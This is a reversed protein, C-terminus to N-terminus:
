QLFVGDIVEGGAATGLARWVNRRISSSVFRVSGDMHAVNVGAGHYSRATVAAYTPRNPDRGEQQTSLDIDYVEGAYPYSVFTNPTYVTTFGTHHVRGDPWVTHGTNDELAPGLKLEGTITEFHGPSDPLTPDIAGSVNRIYSTYHKVDAICLTQSLGDTIDAQRVRRNVRFPGDGSQNTVPDHIFWSGMNFGYNTGHVYPDGNKVRTLTNIEAPCNYIPIVHATVGTDVQDHWDVAFDVRRHANIEECFPMIKAHISWAGRVVTGPQFEFSAPYHKNSTEYNHVALAINKLNNRCSLSQASRRVSQVAPITLGILISIIAIVVLLEVLTFGAPAFRSTPFPTQM